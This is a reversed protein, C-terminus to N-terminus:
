FRCGGSLAHGPEKPQLFLYHHATTRGKDRLGHHAGGGVAVVVVGAVVFHADAKSKLEGIMDDSGGSGLHVIMRGRSTLLARCVAFFDEYCDWSNLQERELFSRSSSLFDEGMWGCFWLRLWNPRDFRMGAFPPSTIISDFQCELLDPLQRFDSELALGPVFCDPLPNALARRIKRETRDLVGRYESPGSPSFPTISHSTRSLAYPRNGHLVHLLCAWVFYESGDAPPEQLLVKRAKLVEDLTAPHFYDAVSANLGFDAARRDDEDLVVGEMRRELKALALLASELSPPNLKARAVMAAFPSKDNSVAYRGSLAAEFAVTGVGGLPDLVSGSSPVFQQILWHAISPKLKGQYSCLSHLDNGWARSSFPPKRYPLDDQFESIQAELVPAM